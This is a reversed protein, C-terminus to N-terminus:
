GGIATMSRGPRYQGRFEHEAPKLGLTRRFLDAVDDDSGGGRLISKLDFELHNGLCPRIKGDSTLRIKNCADCFHLDTMAGIFGVLQGTPTRYYVAPGHGLRVDEARELPISESIARRAEEAPLFNERTLVQTTTLPMLEIFRLYAGRERAFDLLPLLQTESKGRMLVANLKIKPFGAAVAADIGAVASALDKLTIRQYEAADLTDLSVNVSDIGAQQLRRAVPALLTANTSLGLSRIGPVQGLQELFLVADRRVLPEGGTIRFKSFGLAVAIRVVRLVEEYSLIEDHEKWDKLGQPMCYLCRENCRDTISIRLYDVKRRSWDLLAQGAGAPAPRTANADKPNM